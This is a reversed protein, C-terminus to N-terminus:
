CTQLVVTECPTRGRRDEQQNLRGCLEQANEVDVTASSRVPDNRPWLVKGAKIQLFLSVERQFPLLLYHRRNDHGYITPVIEGVHIFLM